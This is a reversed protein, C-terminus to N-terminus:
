QKRDDKNTNCLFDMWGDGFTETKTDNMAKSPNSHEIDPVSNMVQTENPQDTQLWPLQAEM